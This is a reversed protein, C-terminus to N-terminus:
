DASKRITTEILSEATKIDRLCGRAARESVDPILGSLSEGEKANGLRLGEFCGAIKSM